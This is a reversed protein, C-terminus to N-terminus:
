ESRPVTTWVRVVDADEELSEVFEFLEQRSEPTTEVEDIPAYEIENAIIEGQGIRQIASTVDALQNPPCILELGNIALDDEVLESFDEVGAELVEGLLAEHHEKDLRIRVVGRHQFLFKVPGPRAGHSNWIERLNGITRNTNDTHCDVIIGVSGNYILEYQVFQHGADKGRRAKALSTEINDRPVGNDKAKRIANALATNTEPNPSGGARAATLIDRAAKGYLASKKADEVGKKGKIKSWKNHGSFVVSTSSLFRKDTQYLCRRALAPITRLRLTLM